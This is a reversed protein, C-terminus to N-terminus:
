ERAALHPWACPWARMTPQVSGQVCPCTNSHLTTNPKSPRGFSVRRTKALCSKPSEERLLLRGWAKAARNNPSDRAVM